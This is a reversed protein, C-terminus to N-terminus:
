RESIPFGFFCEGDIDDYDDIDMEHDKTKYKNGEQGNRRKQLTKHCLVAIISAFTLVVIGGALGGTIIGVRWQREGRMSMSIQTAISMSPEPVSSAEVSLLSTTPQAEDSREATFAQV